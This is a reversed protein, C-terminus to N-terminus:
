HVGSGKTQFLLARDVIRYLQDYKGNVQSVIDNVYRHWNQIQYLGPSDPSSSSSSSAAAASSSSASSSAAAASSSSSSSSSSASSAIRSSEWFDVGGEKM